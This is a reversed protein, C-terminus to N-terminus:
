DRVERPLLTAPHPAHASGGLGNGSMAYCPCLLRRPWYRVDCLLHVPAYGAGVVHTLTGGPLLVARTLVQRAISTGSDLVLAQMHISIRTLRLTSQYAHPSSNVLRPRRGRARGGRERFLQRQCWCVGCQDTSSMCPAILQLRRVTQVLFTSSTNQKLLAAAFDSCLLSSVVSRLVPYQM